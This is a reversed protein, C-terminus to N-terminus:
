YLHLLVPVWGGDQLMEVIELLPVAVFFVLGDFLTSYVRKTAVTVTQPDEFLRFNPFFRPVRACYDKYPEGFTGALFAEERRIVIQFALICLACFVVAMTISATQAGVGAAAVSSFFYLPNRMISYPGDTVIEDAKRGGIYLTCWIRGLIGVAILVAGFVEIYFHILSHGWASGTVSFLAGFLVISILLYFRRMHQYHSLATRDTANTPSTNM